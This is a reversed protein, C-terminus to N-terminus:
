GKTMERRRKNGKSNVGFPDTKVVIDNTLHHGIIWDLLIHRRGGEDFDYSMNEANANASMAQTLVDHFEVEYIQTDMIYNKNTTRGPNSRHGKIRKIVRVYKVHEESRHIVLEMNLYTDFSDPDFPDVAELIDENIYIRLFEDLFGWQWTALRGEKYYHAITITFKDICERNKPDFM